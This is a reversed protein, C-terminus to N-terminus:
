AGGRLRGVGGPRRPAASVLRTDALIPLAHRATYLCDGSTANIKIDLPGPEDAARRFGPLTQVATNSAPTM